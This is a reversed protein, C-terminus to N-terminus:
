WQDKQSNNYHHCCYLHMLHSVGWNAMDCCLQPHIQNPRIRSKTFKTSMSNASAETLFRFVTSKAPKSPRRSRRGEQAFTEGFEFLDKCKTILFGSKSFDDDPLEM